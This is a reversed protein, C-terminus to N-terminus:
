INSSIYRKTWQGPTLETVQRFCRSFHAQDSFGTDHAVNAFSAGDSLLHKAQEVRAHMVWQHPSQGATQKFRRSFESRSMSAVTALSDVKLPMDLNDHVYDRVLKLWGPVFETKKQDDGLHFIEHIIGMALAEGYGQPRMPQQCQDALLASLRRLQTSASLFLGEALRNQGGAICQLQGKTVHIDIHEFEGPTKIRGFLPMGAPVFCVNCATENTVGKQALGIIAKDFLVSFRPDPSIYEGTAGSLAEVQWFDVVMDKFHLSCVDNIPKIKSISSQMRPKFSM